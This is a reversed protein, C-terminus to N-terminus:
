RVPEEPEIPEGCERCLFIFVELWEPQENRHGCNPCILTLEGSSRETIDKRDEM